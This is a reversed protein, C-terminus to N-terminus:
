KRPGFIDSGIRVFNAGHLIADEFDDSMGMSLYPLKFSLSEQLKKLQVFFNNHQGDIPPICMLGQLDFKDIINDVKLDDIFEQLNEPLVGSKQEEHGINVQIFAKLKNNKEVKKAFTKALKVSDLSHVYSFLTLVDGAKRSQVHGVMHWVIDALDKLEEQKQLAEQIYSEGFHRQGLEYLCRIKEAGHFKSIAILEIKEDKRGASQIADDFRKRVAFYRQELSNFDEHM